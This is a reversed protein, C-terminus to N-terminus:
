NGIRSLSLLHFFCCKTKNCYTTQRMGILHNEGTSSSNWLPSKNSPLFSPLIAMLLFYIEVRLYSDTSSLRGLHSSLPLSLNGEKPSYFCALPLWWQSVIGGQKVGLPWAQNCKWKCIGSYWRWIVHAWSHKLLTWLNCRYCAKLCGQCNAGLNRQPLSLM